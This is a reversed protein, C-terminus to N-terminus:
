FNEAGRRTAMGVAVTAGDNKDNENQFFPPGGGGDMAGGRAWFSRGGVGFGGAARGKM